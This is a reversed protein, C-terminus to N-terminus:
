GELSGAPLKRRKPAVVLALCAYGLFTLFIMCVTAEILVAGNV